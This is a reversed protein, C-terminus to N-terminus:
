ETKDKDTEDAAQLSSIMDIYLAEPSIPGTVHKPDNIVHRFYSITKKGAIEGEEFAWAIVFNREEWHFMAFVVADNIPNRQGIDWAWPRDPDSPDPVTVGDWCHQVLGRTKIEEAVLELIAAAKGQGLPLLIPELLTLIQDDM